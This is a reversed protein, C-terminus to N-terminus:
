VLTFQSPANHTSRVPRSSSLSRGRFYSRLTFPDSQTPTPTLAQPRDSSLTLLRPRAAPRAAPLAARGRARQVRQVARRVAHLGGVRGAGGVVAPAGVAAGARAEAGAARDDARGARGGRAGRVVGAAGGAVCVTM